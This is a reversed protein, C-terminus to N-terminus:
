YVYVNNITVMGTEEDFYSATVAGDTAVSLLVPEESQHRLVLSGNEDQVEIGETTAAVAPTDPKVTHLRFGAFHFLWGSVVIIALSALAAAVRWGLNRGRRRAMTVCEGAELGVQINARMEAALRDWNLGEPLRAGESAVERRAARFGEMEARCRECGRLHWELRWRKLLPLDGGAALALESQAPHRM